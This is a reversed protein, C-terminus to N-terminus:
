TVQVQLMKNFLKIVLIYGADLTENELVIHDTAEMDYPIDIESEQNVIYIRDSTRDGYEEQLIHGVENELEIRVENDNM